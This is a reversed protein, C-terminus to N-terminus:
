FAFYVGLMPQLVAHLGIGEAGFLALAQVHTDVLVWRGRYLEVGVLAGSSIEHNGRAHVYGSRFGLYPNLFTRKGGGLMDSYLDGGLSIAFWDSGKVELSRAVDVDVSFGRGAMISAGGGLFTESGPGNLDFMSVLRLGPWLKPEAQVEGQNALTTSLTVYVTSRAARDRMWRLDGQVQDIQARLRALNTELVVMDKVSEAKELLAEYRALAAMLNRLLIEADFYRRGIDQTEVKRSILRGFGGVRDLFEETRATPLRVSLAAGYSSQTDEVVDNVIQGGISQVLKRVKETTADINEVQVTLRAEIDRMEPMGRERESPKATPPPKATPKPAVRPGSSRIAPAAALPGTLLIDGGSASIAQSAQLADGLRRAHQKTFDLRPCAEPDVRCLEDLGGDGVSAQVPPPSYPQAVQINLAAPAQKPASLQRQRNSGACGLASLALLATIWLARKV